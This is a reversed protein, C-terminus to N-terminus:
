SWENRGDTVKYQLFNRKSECAKINVGFRVRFKCNNSQLRVVENPVPSVIGRGQISEGSENGADPAVQVTCYHAVSVGYREDM